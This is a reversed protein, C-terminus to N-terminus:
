WLFTENITPGSNLTKLGRGFIQGGNQLAKNRQKVFINYGNAALSSDINNNKVSHFLLGMNMIKTSAVKFTDVSM